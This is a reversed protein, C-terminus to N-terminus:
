TFPYVQGGFRIEEITNLNINRYQKKQMDFVTVLTPIHATSSIGGKSHKSVGLRCNITRREGNAKTFVATFTRGKTSEIVKKAKEVKNM